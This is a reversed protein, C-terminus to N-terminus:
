RLRDNMPPPAPAGILVLQAAPMDLDFTGLQSLANAGLAGVVPRDMFHRSLVEFNEKARVTFALLPGDVVDWRAVQM